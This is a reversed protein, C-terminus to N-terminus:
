PFNRVLACSSDPMFQARLPLRLFRSIYPLQDRTDNECTEDERREQKRKPRQKSTGSRPRPLRMGVMQEKKM